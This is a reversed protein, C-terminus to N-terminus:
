GGSVPPSVQSGPLSSPWTDTTLYVMDCRLYSGSVVDHSRPLNFTGNNLFWAGHHRGSMDDWRFAHGFAFPNAKFGTPFAATTFVLDAGVFPNPVEVYFQLEVTNGSRRLLATGGPALAWGNTLYSSIDRWGTDGLEVGNIKVRGTSASYANTRAATNTITGAPVLVGENAGTLDLGGSTVGTRTFRAITKASAGDDSYVSVYLDGAYSWIQWKKENLGEGTDDLRIIPYNADEVKISGAFTPAALDAKSALATNMQATSVEGIPGGPGQPGAQIVSISNTSPDVIIKQTQYTVNIDAM